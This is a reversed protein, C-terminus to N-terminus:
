AVEAHLKHTFGKQTNKHLNFYFTKISEVVVAINVLSAAAKMTDLSRQIERTM